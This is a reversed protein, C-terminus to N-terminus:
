LTFYVTGAVNCLNNGRAVALQEVSLRHVQEARGCVAAAVCRTVRPACSGQSATSRDGSREGIACTHSIIFRSSVKERSGAVVITSNRCSTFSAESLRDYSSM